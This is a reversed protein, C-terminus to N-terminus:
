IFLGRPTPVKLFLNFVIYVLVVVLITLLLSNRIKMAFTIGVEQSQCMLSMVMLYIFTVSYFGFITITSIYIISIVVISIIRKYNIDDTKERIETKSIINRVLIILSLIAIGAIAIYPFVNSPYSLKNTLHWFVGCVGLIIINTIINAVRQTM